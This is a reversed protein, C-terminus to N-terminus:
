ATLIDSANSEILKEMTMISKSWTEVNRMLAEIQNKDLVRPQVWTILVNQAVQDINGKVLGKSLAKMVLLEIKDLSLGTRESIEAFTMQRNLSSRNFAMDMLALLCLKEYLVM